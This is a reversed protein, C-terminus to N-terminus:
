EEQRYEQGLYVVLGCLSGYTGQCREEEWGSTLGVFKYSAGIAVSGAEQQDWHSTGACEDSVLLLQLESVLLHSRSIFSRDRRVPHFRMSCYHLLFVILMFCGKCMFRQLVQELGTAHLDM